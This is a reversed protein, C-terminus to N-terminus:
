ETYQREDTECARVETERVDCVVSGGADGPGLAVAFATVAPAALHATWLREGSGADIAHVAGGATTVMRGGGRRARRDRCQELDSPPPRQVSFSAISANWTLAGTAPDVARVTYEQRGIMVRGAAGGRGDVRRPLPWSPDQTASSLRAELAGSAADIVFLDTHKSGVYAIGDEALFPSRGVLEQASIPLRALGGATDADSAGPSDGGTHNSYIFM